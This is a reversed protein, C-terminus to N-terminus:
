VSMWARDLSLTYITLKLTIRPHEVVNLELAGWYLQTPLRELDSLYALLELYTGTVTIDLGHRYVLRGSDTGEAAAAPQASPKAAPAGAARLDAISQVPLSNLQVLGVGRNRALLEEVVRHMQEPATFKREQEAIRAEVDSLNRKLRELRERLERDPDRQRAQVLGTIQQELRRMESQQQAVSASMRKERTLEADIFFEYAFAVVLLMAAAFIWVRERLSLADVRDALRQWAQRM